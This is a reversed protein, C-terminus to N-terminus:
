ATARQLMGLAVIREYSWPSMLSPGRVYFGAWVMLFRPWIPFSLSRPRDRVSLSMATATATAMATATAALSLMAAFEFGTDTPSRATKKEWVVYRRGLTRAVALMPWPRRSSSPESTAESRCRRCAGANARRTPRLLVAGKSWPLEALCGTSRTMVLQLM